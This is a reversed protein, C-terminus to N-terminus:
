EERQCMHGEGGEGGHGRWLREEVESIQAEVAPPNCPAGHNNFLEEIRTDTDAGKIARM